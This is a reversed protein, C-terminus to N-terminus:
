GPSGVFPLKGDGKEIWIRKSPQPRYSGKHLRAQLDQLKIALNDYAIWTVGDIGSAARRNLSCYAQTLLELTLHLYLNNFRLQSDKKASWKM